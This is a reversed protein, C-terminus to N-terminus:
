DVNGQSSAFGVSFESRTRRASLESGISYVLGANQRIDRFLRSQEPGLSGGGFIVDGLEMAPYQPSSRLLPLLQTLTVNDQGLQPIPVHVDGPANLKVAPLELKPAEGDSKWGGFVRELAARAHEPTVNGVVIVTTLDPRFTKMYYARVDDLTLALMTEPTPERLAPDGEPLLKRQLQLQAIMGTSNRSTRLEDLAHRRAADFTDATFRPHLEAEALLAVARDFSASTTQAGFQSGGGLQTDIEDQARLFAERDRQQTGYAFMAGLVSAVGEKGLPEQLAANTRVSGSIIVTNTITAPRVILTMGNSLHMREPSAVAAPVPVHQLLANGWSPLTTAASQVDLPKEPGTQPPAPPANQYASASPTLAGLMARNSVLYRRAARNVDALTVGGLLAQEHAISPEEDLAITTAWDNALASISNRSLEQGVISLRKTTEFLEPPVGHVAYDRLIGELRRTMELPNQGPPLAATAIGLQGEPVYPMSIWEADLAAGSTVLSQLASRPSELVQQLLFSALFDSDKVGPFRLAVAALPYTLTTAREVVKQELQRPKALPHPPTRRRPIAEFYSRVKSLVAAPDVNGAIVLVANNPAYWREYFRKIEPGTLRHFASVTGVGERAYPTGAFAFARADRFFDNGPTSDDRLVEQEIAGREKEWESQADLVDHMRDSEIRLIADLDPAPVTFEFQTLTDSTEANFRGGLATAITGLQATSLNKTGRFMMHEQAHAMGPFEVPDDRSGVLYALDTSVVPALATPVIVVRLGNALTAKVADESSTAARGVSCSLALAAILLARRFLRPNM